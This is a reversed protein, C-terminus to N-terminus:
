RVRTSTIKLNSTAMAVDFGYSDHCPIDEHDEDTACKGEERSFERLVVVLGLEDRETRETREDHKEREGRRIKRYLLM